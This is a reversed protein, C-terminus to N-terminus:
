FWDGREVWRSRPADTSIGFGGLSSSEPGNAARGGVALGDVPPRNTLPREFAASGGPRRGPTAGQAVEVAAEADEAAAASAAEVLAAVEASNVEQRLEAM